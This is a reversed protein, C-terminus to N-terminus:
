RKTCLNQDGGDIVGQSAFGSAVDPTGGHMVVWQAGSLLTGEKSEAVVPHDKGQVDGEGKGGCPRPM